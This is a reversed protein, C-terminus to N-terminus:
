DTVVLRSPFAASDDSFIPIRANANIALVNILVPMHHLFNKLARQAAAFDNMVLVAVALIVPWLIQFKHAFRRVVGLCGASSPRIVRIREKERILGATALRSNLAMSFAGRAAEEQGARMM